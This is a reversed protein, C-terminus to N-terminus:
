QTEPGAFVEELWNLLIKSPFEPTNIGHGVGPWEEFTVHAKWREYTQAAKRARPNHVSDNQGVGIFVPRGQISGMPPPRRDVAYRGAALIILGALRDLVREGLFTTHYGGQSYGGMFVMEPEVNLRASVMALAELFFAQEKGAMQPSYRSYGPLTYNMGVIIFGRGHTVQYFPWTTANGGAGPYCFIAPWTCDPTYDMPVWVIFSNKAEPADLDYQGPSLLPEPTFVPQPISSCAPIGASGNRANSAQSENQRGSFAQEWKDWTSCGAAAFIVSSCVLLHVITAKM